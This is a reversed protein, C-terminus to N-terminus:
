RHDNFSIPPKRDERDGERQMQKFISWLSSAAGGIGLFVGVAVVWKGLDFRDQLWCSGVICLVLPMAISLGLQTMWALYRLAKFM